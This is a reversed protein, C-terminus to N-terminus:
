FSRKLVLKIYKPFWNCIVNLKIVYMLKKITVNPNGGQTLM